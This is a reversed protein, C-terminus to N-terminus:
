TRCFPPFSHAEVAVATSPLFLFLVVLSRRPLFLPSLRFPSSSLSFFVGRTPWRGGERWRVWYHRSYGGGLKPGSKSLDQVTHGAAAAM